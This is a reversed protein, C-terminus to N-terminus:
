RGSIVRNVDGVTVLGVVHGHQTVVVVNPEGQLAPIVQEVGQAPDAEVVWGLPQPTSVATVPTTDRLHEPVASVANQDLLAYPRGLGELVVPVGPATMARAVSLDSPIAVAPTMVQGLAAKGVRRLVTGQKIAMTAGSWMFMGILVVWIISTDLQRGQALPVLVWAALVALTVLRGTWGAVILGMNRDGTVRWVLAQVLQGGDLPLGPLLNFAALIFNLFAFGGVLYRAVGNPMLPLVALAILGLAVNALPGAAAILASKGPGANGPEYTTHGGWLDAVVRYVKLGAWQATLAHAAEHVLVTVLLLVAYGLGVLYGLLGGGGFSQGVIVIVVAAFILWTWGLYVPVGRLSGLRLGRPAGPDRSSM